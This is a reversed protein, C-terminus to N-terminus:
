ETRRRLSGPRGTRPRDPRLPEVKLGLKRMRHYLTPRPIGLIRAAKLMNGATRALVARIHERAVDDLTMPEPRRDQPHHFPLDSPKIVESRAFLVAQEMVNELERVNGPWSRNCLIDLVQPSLRRPPRGHEERCRSLFHASLLPIDEVRDRLPPLNIIMRSLRYYLDQRFTGAEMAADLDSNTAAIVRVEVRSTAVSGVRRVEKKELARLLSSQQPLPMAGIEDLFLTGGSAAHFLGDHQQGAGTFAGREYGFLESEILEGPVGGCNVAIFPGATMPSRKHVERAVMEKGTGSEGLILVTTDHPAIKTIRRYVSQMAESRGILQGFADRSGAQKRLVTVEHRLRRQELANGVTTILRSLRLPKPLYDFAGQRFCDMAAEIEGNNTLIVVPFDPDVAHVRDLLDAVRLDPPHSCALLLDAEGKRAAAVVDSGKALSAVTHGEAQLALAIPNAENSGPPPENAPDLLL